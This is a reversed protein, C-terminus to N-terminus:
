IRRIARIQLTDMCIMPATSETLLDQLATTTILAAPQADELISTIRKRPYIPDLPLYAAGSKLIGLLGALMDVSRDVCIGVITGPGVGISILSHAVQNARLNLERYTLVKGAATVAVRDPYKEANREFKQHFSESHSM